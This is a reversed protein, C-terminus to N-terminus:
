DPQVRPRRLTLSRTVPGLRSLLDGIVDYRRQADVLALRSYRSQGPVQRALGTGDQRLGTVETGTLITAGSAKARADLIRETEYQPTALLCPFRSPQRSLDVKVNGFLVQTSLTQGTAILQDAVGCADLMELTRSHVVFARTWPPEERRREMVTVAVGGAALDGALLLGTPGPV